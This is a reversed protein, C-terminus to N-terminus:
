IEAHYNYITEQTRWFGDLRQQFIDNSEAHVASDALRELAM